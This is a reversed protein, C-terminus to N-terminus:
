PTQEDLVSQFARAVETMKGDAALVRALSARRYRWNSWAGDPWDQARAREAARAYLTFAQLFLGDEKDPTVAIAQREYREALRALSNPEYRTAADQYWRWAKAVDPPFAAGSRDLRLVGHEYLAGLEFGAIAIGSKWAHEFLTAARGADIMGAAPDLLLLGLDVQAARYGKSVASELDRRAGQFDYAALRARGTQYSIQGSPADRAADTCASLAYDPIISSQEIGPTLRDPDYYAGARQSCALTKSAALGTDRARRGGAELASNALFTLTSPIGLETRQVDTLPDAEVAREWLVQSFPDAPIRADWVRATGDAAASAIRTGEPSYSLDSLKADHGVLV